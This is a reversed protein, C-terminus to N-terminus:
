ENVAKIETIKNAKLRTEEVKKLIRNQESELLNVRNLIKQEDNALQVLRTNVNILQAHEDTPHHSVSHRSAPPAGVDVSRSLGGRM